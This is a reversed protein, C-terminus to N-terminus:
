QKFITCITASKLTCSVIQKGDKVALILEVFKLYQLLVSTSSVPRNLFANAGFKM